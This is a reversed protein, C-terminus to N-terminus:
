YTTRATLGSLAQSHATVLTSNPSTKSGYQTSTGYEVQSDSNENTIWTVTASNYSVSGSSVASLVPPTTDTAAPSTFAFDGSVALNGAADKSKVRYHYTTNGALGNLAQSHATVMTPNLATTSG